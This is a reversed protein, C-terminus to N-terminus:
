RNRFKLARDIERAAEKSAIDDRKDHERKGKALAVEVKVHSDKWYLRLPVLTYGREIVKAAIKTLERRHLLLKRERIPEHGFQHAFAYEAIHAGVLFIEGSREVKCFSGDLSAKGARLSKVESGTLVLGAEWADEIAFDHRARKNQAILKEM